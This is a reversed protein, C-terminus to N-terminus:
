GTNPYLEKKVEYLELKDLTEELPYATEPDYGMAKYYNKKATEIDPANEADPGEKLPPIGKARDTMLTDGPNIGERINFSHRITKIRRGIWLYEEFNKKWGTAYNIWEVLPPTLGGSFGFACLGLGEVLDMMCSADRLDDGQNVDAHKRGFPRPYLKRYPDTKRYKDCADLTSTHRGPTPEAEYGVGLGLNENDPVRPDHMPLEQGGANMAYSISSKGTSGFHESAKKVGMRLYQGIGEGDIMKQVLQVVAEANGWTLDLGGTDEKTIVGNEYAEFAWAVVASCSITDIGARNLMDNIKVIRRIDNCLLMTGFGCLTEYEPKHADQLPYPGDKVTMHGGCRVPCHYCGYKEVEYNTVADDSIRKAVEEPFDTIGAGKWNKVPSEGCEAFYSVFAATGWTRFKVVHPDKFIDALFLGSYQALSKQDYIRPSANGRICVAKLKKSGMVAGLGSRAALRGKDTVVGAILSLAEGAPGICATEFEKGHKKRLYDDTFTTDKGWIEAADVLEKKGNDILLYVPSPSIGTFFFGDYGTKKIVPAFYGGCNADGWTGTLPSKGAVMWRGNMLAGTGTLLGSMICFINDPGLPDAGPKQRDFIIKAALGYGSLFKEYYEDPIVEETIAGTQLDVWLIKGMYGFKQPENGM